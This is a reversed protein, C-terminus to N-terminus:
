QSMTSRPKRGRYQLTNLLRPTFPIRLRRRMWAYGISSVILAGCTAVILDGMTDPWGSEQSAWGFLVDGSFEWIEWIVAVALAFAFSFLAIFGANLQLKERAQTANLIYVLLFGVIGALIGSAFHLMGDWWWFRLYFGNLSGLFLSLFIFVVLAFDLEFPLYIRYAEKVHSPIVMALLILSSYFAFAWDGYWLFVAIAGGVLVRMGYYVTFAIGQGTIPFWRKM